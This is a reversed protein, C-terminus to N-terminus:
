RAGKANARSRGGRTVRREADRRNRFIGLPVPPPDDCGECAWEHAIVREGIHKLLAEWDPSQFYTRHTPGAM